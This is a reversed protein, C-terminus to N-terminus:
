SIRIAVFELIFLILVLMNVGILIMDFTKKDRLFSFRDKRSLITLSERFFQHGDTIVIPLANTIALIINVWFLWYLMNFIEFFLGNQIPTTYIHALSAPVPSLGSFPLSITQLFGYWPVQYATSGSILAKLASPSVLTMGSYVIEVGIFSMNKMANTASSPDTAEYYSYESVTTINSLLKSHSSANQYYVTCISINSGPAINSLISALGTTNYVTENNVTLIISSPQIQTSAAPYGSITSYVVVGVPIQRYSLSNGNYFTANVLTGPTFRSDSPLNVLSNGSCSGLSVLEKGLTNNDSYISNPVVSYVYAGPKDVHMAPAMAGVLIIFAIAAMVVNIAPGAAVIRRKIVPDSKNIEADDPEVFAGMPIIFFMIGVSNVKIGNSRATIGHFLEHVVVSVVFAVLGYGIPIIPNIGPLGLLESAPLSRTVGSTLSIYASHIVM